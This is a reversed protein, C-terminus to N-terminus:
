ASSGGGDHVGKADGAPMDAELRVIKGDRIGIDLDQTGDGDPCVVRVNKLILDLGMFEEAL